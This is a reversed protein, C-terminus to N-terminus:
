AASSDREKMQEVLISKFRVLIDDISIEIDLRAALEMVEFGLDYGMSPRAIRKALFHSISEIAKERVFKSNIEAGWEKARILKKLNHAFWINQINKELRRYAESTLKELDIEVGLERAKELPNINDSIYGKELISEQIRQPNIEAGLEKAKLLIDLWCQIEISSCSKVGEYGLDGLKQASERPMSDLIAECEEQYEKHYVSLGVIERLRELLVEPEVTGRHKRM